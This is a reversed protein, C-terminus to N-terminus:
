PILIIKGHTHGSSLARHAGAADSLPYTSAVLVRLKGNEAQRVLALRADNRIDVGADAGPAAGIVKIGHQFGREFAAITVIRHHEAVLALSTDIAEDTGVTDVAADVGHPALARIREVLGEGYVVPVAGLERLYPHQPESATGIVNAGAALALQVAMLGVGGAAGHVVVTDNAGVGIVTLAHVATSGTLLLGSAEAFTLPSPKPLVASAPVLVEAAYAGVIRFAVVEDGVQIPGLPGKADKGVARVVGSAESGLRLPLQAPDRGLSGSYLKFDIPNTGAARVELLVQEPGVPGIPEDIVALVEPGGYATAVVTTTM